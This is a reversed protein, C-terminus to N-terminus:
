EDASCRAFHVAFILLLGACLYIDALNVWLGGKFLVGSLPLRMWDIVHGYLLRDTLNCVAGCLTVAFGARMFFSRGSCAAAVYLLLGVCATNMLIIPTAPMGNLFSFSVGTNQFHTLGYELVIKKSFFDFSYLVAGLGASAYLKRSRTMSM